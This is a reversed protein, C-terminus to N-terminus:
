SGPPGRKESGTNDFPGPVPLSGGRKTPRNKSKLLGAARDQKTKLRHHGATLPQLNDLSTPGNNAVPDIHDHQLNYRGGCGCACTAGGFLPPPGLELATRLEAPIHRGFHTVTDIRVGDHLVVKLFADQELAQRVVDVTTRGGGIIHCVEGPEAHGRGLAVYDCVFVVDASTPRRTNPQSQPNPDVM